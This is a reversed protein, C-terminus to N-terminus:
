KNNKIIELISKRLSIVDDEDPDLIDYSVLFAFIEQDIKEETEM